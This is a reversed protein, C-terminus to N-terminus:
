TIHSINLLLQQVETDSFAGLDLERLTKLLEHSYYQHFETYPNEDPSNTKERRRTSLGNSSGNGTVLHLIQRFGFDRNSVRGSWFPTIQHLVDPTETVSPVLPVGSLYAEIM